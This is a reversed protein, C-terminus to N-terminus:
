GNVLSGGFHGAAGILAATIILLAWYARSGSRDSPWLALGITGIAGASALILHILLTGQLEFGMRLWAAIGTPIVVALSLAAGVFNIRGAVLYADKAQRVGLVVLGAGFLMLAIPFHVLAPHYSHTPLLASGPAKPAPGAPGAAADNATGGTPKPSGAPHSAADGPLTDGRIEDGNSWGDGYSDKSELSVLIADTLKFDGSGEIATKVEKGYANRKPPDTHCVICKAQGLKSTPAVNYHKQFVAWFEPTALAAGVGLCSM